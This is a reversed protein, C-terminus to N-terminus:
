KRESSFFKMGEKSIWDGDNDYNKILHIWVGEGEDDNDGDGEPNVEKTAGTGAQLEKVKFGPLLPM